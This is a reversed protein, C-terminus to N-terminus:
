DQHGFRANDLIKQFAAFYQKENPDRDYYDVIFKYLNQEYPCYVNVERMVFGYDDVTQIRRCSVGSVIESKIDNDTEDLEGLILSDLPLNTLPQSFIIISACGEPMIGGHGWPHHCSKGIYAAVHINSNAVDYAFPTSFNSSITLDPAVLVEDVTEKAAVNGAGILLLVIIIRFYLPM